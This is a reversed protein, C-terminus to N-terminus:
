ATGEVLFAKGEREGGDVGCLNRQNRLGQSLSRDRRRGPLQSERQLSLCVSAYVSVYNYTIVQFCLRQHFSPSHSSADGLHLQQTLPRNHRRTSHPCLPQHLLVTNRPPFTDTNWSSLALPASTDQLVPLAPPLSNASTGSCSQSNSKCPFATHAAPGAKQSNRKKQFLIHLHLSLSPDSTGSPDRAPAAPDFPPAMERSSVLKSAFDLPTNPVRLASM